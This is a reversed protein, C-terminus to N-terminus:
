DPRDEVPAYLGGYITGRGSPVLKIGGRRSLRNVALFVQNWTLNVCERTVEEFDCMHRLHMVDIVQNEVTTQQAM